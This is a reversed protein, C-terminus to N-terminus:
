KHMEHLHAGIDKVSSEVRNHPLRGTQPHFLPRGTTKDIFTNKTDEMAKMKENQFKAQM